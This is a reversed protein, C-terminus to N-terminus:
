RSTTPASPACRCNGSSTTSPRRTACGRRDRPTGDFPIAGISWATPVGAAVADDTFRRVTAMAVGPRSYRVDPAIHTVDAAQRGLATQLSRWAADPLCVLVADGAAMGALVTPALETALADPGDHFVAEHAFRPHAAGTMTSEDIM